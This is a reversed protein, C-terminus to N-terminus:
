WFTPDPEIRLLEGVVHNEFIAKAAGEADAGEPKKFITDILSFATDSLKFKRMVTRPDNLFEKNSNRDHRVYYMFSLWGTQSPPESQVSLVEATWIELFPKLLHENFLKKAQKPGEQTDANVESVKKVQTGIEKGLDFPGIVAPQDRHFTENTPKDHMVWYMFSILGKPRDNSM